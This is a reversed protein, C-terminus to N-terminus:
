SYGAGGVVREPSGGKHSELLKGVSLLRITPTIEGETHDQGRWFM